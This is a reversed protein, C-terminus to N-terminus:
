ENEEKDKESKKPDYPGKHRPHYMLYKSKLESDHLNTYIQTTTISSHGLFEQVLRLDAGNDLMHTAASHRLSHPHLDKRGMKKGYGDLIRWYGSRGLPTGRCNLFLQEVTHDRLLKPRGDRLYRELAELAYSGVPVLREKSGKGWCRVFQENWDIDHATLSLLESARLGCGYGMEIMARDRQGLPSDDPLFLLKEIEAPTLVSRPPQVLHPSLLAAAFDKQIRGTRLLFHSFSRYVSIHRAQTAPSLNADKGQWYVYNCVLEEDVQHWGKCGEAQLFDALQRLDRRYNEVTASSLGKELAIYDLFDEEAQRFRDM